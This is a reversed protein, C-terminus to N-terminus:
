SGGEAETCGERDEVGGCVGAWDGGRTKYLYFRVRSSAVSTYHCLQTQGKTAPTSDLLARSHGSHYLFRVQKNCHQAHCRPGDKNLM